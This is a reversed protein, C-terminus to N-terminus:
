RKWGSSPSEAERSRLLESIVRGDMYDPPKIDYFSLITPALDLNSVDKLVSGKQINPGMSVMFANPRHNGTYYPNVSFPAGQVSIRGYKDTQLETMLKADYNWNIIIDPMNKRFPGGYITDTKFVTHAALKGNEPNVMTKATQYIEECLEEYEKGPEVTGQPERGKLNIRIFGENANMILFARTEDWQIDATLWRQALKEKMSRPILTKSIAVRWTAPILKRLTSLLDGRNKLSKGPMVTKNESKGANSGAMKLLGMKKLLDNLIHSGSYNPGMGDGSVLFVTTNEDVSELIEGIAKDLAVYIDRLSHEMMGAGEKPHAPYSPDHLHWFYHGSPHTESFIVLFLDWEEKNMLWKVVKTKKEVAALLRQRFGKCDPSTMVKSHDESPYSGFKKQIERKLSAPTTTQEWFRTWTGWELIQAGNFNECPCTLFADMIVCRKGRDSLLKWFFPYPSSDPRPRQLSQQGPNMVYSHYLGHKDPNTGTFISPWGSVHVIESTTQMRSWTGQSRMKSIHPLLGERCWQEILETDGADLGIFLVRKKNMNNNM